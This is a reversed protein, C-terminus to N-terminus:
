VGYLLPTTARRCIRSSQRSGQIALLTAAFTVITLGAALAHHRWFSVILLQLAVGGSLVILPLLALWDAGIM